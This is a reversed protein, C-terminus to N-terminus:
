HASQGTGLWSQRSTTVCPVCFCFECEASESGRSDPLPFPPRWNLPLALPSRPVDDLRSSHATSETECVDTVEGTWPWGNSEFLQQGADKQEHNIGRLTLHLSTEVLFRSIYLYLLVIPRCLNETPLSSCYDGWDGLIHCLFHAGYTGSWTVQLALGPVWLKRVFSGAHFCM